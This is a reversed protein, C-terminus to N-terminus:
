MDLLTQMMDGVAKLVKANATYSQEIQLLSQMEFDTDVGGQAELSTFTDLRTSAFTMEGQASLTKAATMSLLDATLVSFSRLSPLFGGSATQRRGTLAANLSALLINAGPPGPSIAGLGDRLRWLAGGQAPDVAANLTLRQALGVENAADFHGSADTFLGPAGVTRTSDITTNQFREVLDRAVADIQAQASVAIDDRLAFNAALTGGLLFSEVGSTATAVGNLTLGSLGGLQQSMAPSIAATPTFGFVSPRRDLLVAGGTTYLAVTGDSQSVERLPLIQAIQDITQQRQDQLASTDQGASIGAQIQGNLKAARGLAVNLQQVQTAIEADARTRATQIDAGIAALGSALAKATAAVTALRVDSEPHSVAETLASGFAAARGSLSSTQDPTGMLTQLRDFFAQRAQADGVASQALRRDNLLPRDEARIISVIKVGQGNPGTTQAALALARRGYGPTTANAINSSVLESAKAAATLGSLASAFATGFSM